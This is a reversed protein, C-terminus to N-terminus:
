ATFTLGGAVAAPTTSAHTTGNGLEGESNGGWCYAAGDVTLGCVHFYGTTLTVFKLGGSVPEPVASLTTGGTGLEGYDNDGWCYAAGSTTLGCSFQYGAGVTTFSSESSIRVPRSNTYSITGNGLEGSHNNGWCFMEGTTTVGCTHYVGASVAKFILGGVVAKPGSSEVSDGDGLQGNFNDGWCYAAGAATLGCTHLFGRSITTFAPAGAVPAPATYWPTAADGATDTAPPGAGGWCYGVGGTTVAGATLLFGTSVNAFAGHPTAALVNITDVVAPRGDRYRITVVTQGPATALFHYDQLDGGCGEPACVKSREMGLFSVASTSIEPLTDYEIRASPRIDAQQGVSLSLAQLYREAPTITVGTPHDTCTAGALPLLVILISRVMKPACNVPRHM